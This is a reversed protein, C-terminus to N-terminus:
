GRHTATVVLAIVTVVVAVTAVIVAARALHGAWTQAAVPDRLARHALWFAVADLLLTAGYSWLLRTDLQGEAFSRFLLSQVLGSWAGQGLMTLVALTFAAIAAAPPTLIPVTEPRERDAPQEHDSM